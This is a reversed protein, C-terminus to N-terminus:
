VQKRHRDNKSDKIMGPLCQEVCMAFTMRSAQEQLYAQREQTQKAIRHEIPDAGLTVLRRAAKALDRAEALGIVDCSGLGMWREKGTLPSRFRYVWSRVVGYEASHKDGRQRHSVQIYLGTTEPDRHFGEGALSAIKLATLKGTLKLSKAM